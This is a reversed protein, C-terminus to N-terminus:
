SVDWVEPTHFINIKSHYEGLCESCFYAIPGCELCRYKALTPCFVCHQDVPMSQSETVVWLLSSRIKEWSKVNAAQKIAHLSPQFFELDADSTCGDPASEVSKEVEHLETVISLDGDPKSENVGRPICVTRKNSGTARQHVKFTPLNLKIRWAM